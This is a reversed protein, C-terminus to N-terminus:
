SYIGFNEPYDWPRNHKFKHEGLYSPGLRSRTSLKIGEPTHCNFVTSGSPRIFKFHTKKFCELKRFQSYKPGTCQM